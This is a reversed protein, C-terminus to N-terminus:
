ILFICHLIHFSVQSRLPAHSAPNIKSISIIKIESLESFYTLVAPAAQIFNFSTNTVKQDQEIKIQRQEDKCCGNEASEHSQTMGCKPCIKIHTQWLGWDVLKGMCYHLHVTAGASSTLYLVALIAVLIKKM